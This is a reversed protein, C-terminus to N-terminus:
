YKKHVIGIQRGYNCVEDEHAVNECIMNVFTQIKFFQVNPNRIKLQNEFNTKAIKRQFEDMLRTYYYRFQRVSIQCDYLVKRVFYQYIIEGDIKEFYINMFFNIEEPNMEKLQTKMEKEIRKLSEKNQNVSNRNIQLQKLFSEKIFNIEFCHMLTLLLIIIWIKM